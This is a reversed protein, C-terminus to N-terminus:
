LIDVTRYLTRGTGAHTYSGDRNLPLSLGRDGISGRGGSGGGSFLKGGFPPPPSSSSPRTRTTHTGGGGM